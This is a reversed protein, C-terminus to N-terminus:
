YINRSSIRENLDIWNVLCTLKYKMNKITKISLVQCIFLGSILVNYLIGISNGTSFSFHYHKWRSFIIVIKRLCLFIISFRRIYEFSKKEISCLVLEILFKMNIEFLMISMFMRLLREFFKWISIKTQSQKKKREHFFM